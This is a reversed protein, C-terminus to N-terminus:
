EELVRGAWDGIGYVKEEPERHLTSNVDEPVYHGSKTAWDNATTIAEELSTPQAQEGSEFALRLVREHNNAAAHAQEYSAGADRMELHEVAGHLLVAATDGLDVLLNQEVWLQGDPTYGYRGGNADETFDQDILRLADGDVRYVELGAVEGIPGYLNISALEEPTLDSEPGQREAYYNLRDSRENV